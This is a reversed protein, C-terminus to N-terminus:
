DREHEKRRDPVIFYLVIAIGLGIQGGDYLIHGYQWHKAKAVLGAMFLFAFFFVALLLPLKNRNM